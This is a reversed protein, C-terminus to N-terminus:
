QIEVMSLIFWKIAEGLGAIARLQLESSVKQASPMSESFYVMM